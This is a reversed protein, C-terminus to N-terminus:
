RAVCRCSTGVSGRDASCILSTAPPALHRFVRFGESRQRQRLMELRGLFIGADEAPDAAIRSIRLEHLIGGAAKGPLRWALSGENAADCKGQHKIRAIGLYCWDVHGADQMQGDLGIRFGEAKEVGFHRDKSKTVACLRPRPM